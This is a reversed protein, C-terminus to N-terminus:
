DNEIRPALIFKFYKNEIVSPYYKKATISISDDDTKSLIKFIKEMYEMSLKVKQEEGKESKLDLTPLTRNTNGESDVSLFRLIWRKAEDNKAIVMCVNSPCLAIYNEEKLPKYKNHNDNFINELAELLKYEQKLTLEQKEM